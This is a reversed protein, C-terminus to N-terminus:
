NIDYNLKKKYFLKKAILRKMKYEGTYVLLLSFLVKIAENIAGMKEFIEIYKMKNDYIEEIKTILKTEELKFYVTVLPPSIDM